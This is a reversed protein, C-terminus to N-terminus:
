LHILLSMSGKKPQKYRIIVKRSIYINENLKKHM